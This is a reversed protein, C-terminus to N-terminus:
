VEEAGIFDMDDHEVIERCISEAQVPTDKAKQVDVVGDVRPLKWHDV